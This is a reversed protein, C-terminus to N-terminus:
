NLRRAKMEQAKRAAIYDGTPLSSMKVKVIENSGVPKIPDPANTPAVKVPTKLRNAMNILSEGAEWMNQRMLQELLAPNKGLEYAVETGLPNKAIFDKLIPIAGIIPVIPAIVNDYDAHKVRSAAQKTEVAVREADAIRSRETANLRENTKTDIRRDNWDDVARDYEELTSYQEIKPRDGLPKEAPKLALLEREAKEARLRTEILLRAHDNAKDDVVPDTKISETTVTETVPDTKVTETETAEIVPVTETTTETSQQEVPASNTEVVVDMPNFVPASTSVQSEDTM